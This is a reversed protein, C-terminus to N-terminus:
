SASPAALEDAQQGETQRTRKLEQSALEEVTYKPNSYILVVM